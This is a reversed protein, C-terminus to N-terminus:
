VTFVWNNVSLYRNYKAIEHKQFVTCNRSTITKNQWNNTQHIKHNKLTAYQFFTNEVCLAMALLKLRRVFIMNLSISSLWIDISRKSKCMLSTILEASRVVISFFKNPKNDIKCSILLNIVHFLFTVNFNFRDKGYNYHKIKKMQPM